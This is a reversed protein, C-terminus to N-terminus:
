QIQFPAILTKKKYKIPRSRFIVKKGDSKTLICFIEDSVEDKKELHKTKVPSGDPYTPNINENFKILPRNKIRHM